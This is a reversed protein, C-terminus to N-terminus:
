RTTLRVFCFAPRSSDMLAWRTQFRDRFCQYRMPRPSYNPTASRISRCNSLKSQSPSLGSRPRNALAKQIGHESLGKIQMMGLRLALGSQHSIVRNHDDQSANVCVPLVAKVNHRQADQVM